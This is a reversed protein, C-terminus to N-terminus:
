NTRRIMLVMKHVKKGKGHELRAFYIGSAVSRGRNDKGQWIAQHMGASLESDVLNAVKQGRLNYVNLTVKGESPISFRVTTSPNFPNPYNGELAFAAPITESNQKLRVHRFANLEPYLHNEQSLIRDGYVSTPKLKM